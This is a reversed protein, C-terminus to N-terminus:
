LGKEGRKMGGIEHRGAWTVAQWALSGTITSSRHMGRKRGERIGSSWCCDGVGGGLGKRGLNRSALDLTVVRM